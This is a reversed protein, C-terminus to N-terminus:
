RAKLVADIFRLVQEEVWERSVEEPARREVSMWATSQDTGAIQEKVEIWGDDAHMFTLRSAALTPALSGRAPTFSLEVAPYSFGGTLRNSVEARFREAEIRAAFEELVSVVREALVETSRSRLSIEKEDSEDALRRREQNRERHRGFIRGLEDQHDSPM